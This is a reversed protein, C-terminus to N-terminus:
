DTILQIVPFFWKSWNLDKQNTERYFKNNFVRLMIKIAQETKTAKKTKWRFLARAERRIKGKIKRLTVPSLDITGNQYEFGLFNWASNPKFFQEKDSNIALEKKSIINHIYQINKNLLDLNKDFIIIDDSYRAYITGKNQFYNDLDKLYVNAFFTSMPTGAMAGRNEEIIKGDFVCKNVLLINEFFKYLKGDESFIKELMPLFQSISISNFYNSIDLKYAYM